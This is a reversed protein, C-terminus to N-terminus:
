GVEEVSESAGSLDFMEPYDSGAASGDRGRGIRRGRLPVELLACFGACRAAYVDFLVLATRVHGAGAAM